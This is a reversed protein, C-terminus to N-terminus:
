SSTGEEPTARRPAVRILATEPGYPEATGAYRDILGAEHGTVIEEGRSRRRRLEAYTSLAADPDTMSTFPRDDLYEEDFHAADSALLVIGGRTEVRVM